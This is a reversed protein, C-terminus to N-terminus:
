LYLISRSGFTANTYTSPVIQRHSASYNNLYDSGRLTRAYSLYAEATWEWLNGELDYINLVNDHANDGTYAYSGTHRQTKFLKVNYTDDNGDKKGNAFKMVQDWNSGWVMHSKTRGTKNRLKNYIGYWMNGSAAKANMPIKGKKSEIKEVNISAEYRSIYFGGYKAVSTAMEEYDDRLQTLLQASTSVGAAELYTSNDDKDSDTVIDPERFGSDRTFIQGALSSNFNNGDSTAYLKGALSPNIGCTPCTFAREAFTLTVAAGHDRCMVMDNINAVPIWVYQNRNEMADNHNTDTVDGLGEYIVLGETVEDESTVKSVVYGEPVWVTGHQTPGEEGKGDLQNDIYNELDGLLALEREEESKWNMAGEQARKLIGNQGILMNITVAALIILVIITVVLAVLTIGKNGYLFPMSTNRVDKAEM